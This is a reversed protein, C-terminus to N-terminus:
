PASQPRATGLLAQDPVVSDAAGAASRNRTWGGAVFGIRPKKIANFSVARNGNASVAHSQHRAHGAGYQDTAIGLRVSVRFCPLRVPRSRCRHGHFKGVGPADQASWLIDRDGMTFPVTLYPPKACCVAMELLGTVYRFMVGKLSRKNTSQWPLDVMRLMRWVAMVSEPKLGSLWCTVLANTSRCSSSSLPGLSPSSLNDKEIPSVLKSLLALAFLSKLKLKSSPLLAKNFNSSVPLSNTTKVAVLPSKM